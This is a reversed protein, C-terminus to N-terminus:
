GRRWSRPSQLPSAHDTRRLVWRDDRAASPPRISPRSSKQRVRSISTNNCRSSRAVLTPSGHGSVGAGCAARGDNVDENADGSHSVPVPLDRVCRRTLLAAGDVHEGDKSSILKLGADGIVEGRGLAAGSGEVAASSAGLQHSPDGAVVLAATGDTTPPNGRQATGPRWSM